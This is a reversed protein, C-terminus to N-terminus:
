KNNVYALEGSGGNSSNPWVFVFVLINRVHSSSVFFFVANINNICYIYDCMDVVCIAVLEMQVVDRYYFLLARLGRGQFNMIKLLRQSYVILIYYITLLLLLRRDLEVNILQIIVEIATGVLRSRRVM